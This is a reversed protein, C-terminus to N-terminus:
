PLKEVDIFSISGGCGSLITKKPPPVKFLNKTIVSIRSKEIKISEIEKITKIIEETFLYGTILDELNVPITMTTIAHRGNIFLAFPIEDVIDREGHEFLDGDIRTFPLSRYMPFSQSKEDTKISNKNKRTKEQKMSSEGSEREPYRRDLVAKIEAIGGGARNRYREM